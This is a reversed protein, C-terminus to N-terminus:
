PVRCIVLRVADDGLRAVPLRTWSGIGNFDKLSMLATIATVQETNDARFRIQFAAVNPKFSGRWKGEELDQVLPAKPQVSARKIADGTLRALDLSGQDLSSCGFLEFKVASLSRATTIAQLTAPDAKGTQPIGTDRQFRELASITEGGIKGDTYVPNGYRSRLFTQIEAISTDPTKGSTPCVFVAIFRPNPLKALKLVFKGLGQASLLAQLQEAQRQAIASHRIEFGSVFTEKGTDYKAPWPLSKAAAVFKGTELATAIRLSLAPDGRLECSYVEVEFDKLPIASSASAKGATHAAAAVLESQRNLSEQLKSLADREANLARNKEVQASRLSDIAAKLQAMQAADKVEWATRLGWVAAAASLAFIGAFFVVPMRWRALAFVATALSGAILAIPRVTSRPLSIQQPPPADFAYAAVAQKRISETEPRLVKVAGDTIWEALRETSALITGHSDPEDKFAAPVEEFAYFTQYPTQVDKWYRAQDEPLVKTKNNQAHLLHDKFLSRAFKLAAALRDTEGNELRTPVPYIRFQSGRQAQISAAVAAAGRTSQQNLTFCIVLRDPLQVTCISSTDSVGTRSDILIYDYDSRLADFAAQILKGGGLREYFNDWDFTNVRQAYNADQRGAPLLAVSGTGRLQLDLGVVYNELSPFEEDDTSPGSSPDPTMKAKAVDWIFDVLGPTSQLEPDILFPRLYRHLGPAELDWDVVLVNKDNSALVWAMNALAMTRGTGGKYSYFTIVQGRLKTVM